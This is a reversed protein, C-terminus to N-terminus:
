KDQKSSLLGLGLLMFIEEATLSHLEESSLFPSTDFIGEDKAKDILILVAKHFETARVKRELAVRETIHTDLYEIIKRDMDVKNKAIQLLMEKDMDAM